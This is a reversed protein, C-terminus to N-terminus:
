VPSCYGSVAEPDFTTNLNADKFAEPVLQGGQPNNGDLLPQINVNKPNNADYAVTV